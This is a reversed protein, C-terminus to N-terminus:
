TDKTLSYEQSETAAHQSFIKMERRKELLPSTDEEERDSESDNEQSLEAISVETRTVSNRPSIDIHVPQRIDEREDLLTDKLEGDNLLLYPNSDRNKFCIFLWRSVYMIMYLLPMYMLLQNILIDRSFRETEQLLVYIYCQFGSIVALFLFFICDIITYRKQKYPQTIACVCVFIICIIVKLGFVELSDQALTMVMVMVLRFVFYIGAFFRRDPTGNTGDKYCSQFALVFQELGPRKLKARELFSYCTKFQYFTLLLPPVLGFTLFVVIALFFFPLHEKSFLGISPDISLVKKSTHLHANFDFIKTISFFLFTVYMVKYYTLLLCAAFTDLISIKAKWVRKWRLCPFCIIKLMWLVPRFNMAQLEIIVYCVVLLLFPYLASIYHLALIDMPRLNHSFCIDSKYSIMRYFDLNWICYPVIISQVMGQPLYSDGLPQFFMQVIYRLFIVEFPLTMTQAFFIYGNAPGSTVRIHFYLIFLFFITTPIIEIAIYSVISRRQDKAKNCKICEFTDSYIAISYNDLCESCLKKHRNFIHCFNKTRNIPTYVSTLADSITLLCRVVLLRQGHHPSDEEEESACYGFFVTANFTSNDCKIDPLAKDAKAPPCVCGREKINHFGLPCDLINIHIICSSGNYYITVETTNSHNWTGYVTLGIRLSDIRSIGVYTSGDYSVNFTGNFFSPTLVLKGPTANVPSEPCQDNATRSGALTVCCYLALTPFISFFVKMKLM